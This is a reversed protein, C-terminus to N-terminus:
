SNALAGNDVGSASVTFLFYPLLIAIDMVHLHLELIKFSDNFLVPSFLILHIVLLILLVATEALFVLM